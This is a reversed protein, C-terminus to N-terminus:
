QPAPSVNFRHITLPSIWWNTRSFHAFIKLSYFCEHELSRQTIMELSWLVKPPFKKEKKLFEIIKTVSKYAWSSYRCLFRYLNCNKLATWSGSRCEFNESITLSHHFMFISTKARLGCHRCAVLKTEALSFLVFTFNLYWGKVVVADVSVGFLELLCLLRLLTHCEKASWREGNEERSRVLANEM